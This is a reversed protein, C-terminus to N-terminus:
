VQFIFPTKKSFSQRNIPTPEDNEKLSEKISQELSEKLAQEFAKEEHSHKPFADDKRLDDKRKGDPLSRFISATVAFPRDDSRSKDDVAPEKVPIKEEDDLSARSSDATSVVAGGTPVLAPLPRELKVLDASNDRKSQVLSVVHGDYEIGSYAFDRAAPTSLTRSYGPCENVQSSVQCPLDFSIL